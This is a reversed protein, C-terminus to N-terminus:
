PTAELIRGCVPCFEIDIEIDDYECVIASQGGGYWVIYIGGSDNIFDGRLMGYEIQKYTLGRTTMECAKCGKSREEQERLAAIAMALAEGIFIHPYEGMHHHVMHDEIRKIAEERTV